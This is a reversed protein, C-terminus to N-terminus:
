LNNYYLILALKKLSLNLVPVLPHNPHWAQSFYHQCQPPHCSTIPKATLRKEKKQFSNGGDPHITDIYITCFSIHYLTPLSYSYRQLRKEQEVPDVMDIDGDDHKRKGKNGDNDRRNRNRSRDRDDRDDRDDRNRDRGSRHRNKKKSKNTQTQARLQALMRKYYASPKFDKSKVDEVTAYRHKNLSNAFM